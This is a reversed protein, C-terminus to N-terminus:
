GCGCPKIIWAKVLLNWRSLHQIHHGVCSFQYKLYKNLIEKPLALNLWLQLTQDNLPISRETLGKRHLISAIGSIKIKIVIAWITKIPIFKAWSYTQSWLSSETWSENQLSNKFSFISFIIFYNCAFVYKMILETSIM